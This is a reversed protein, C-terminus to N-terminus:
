KGPTAVSAAGGAMLRGSSRTFFVNSKPCATNLRIKVDGKTEEPTTHVEFGMRWFDCSSVAVLRM